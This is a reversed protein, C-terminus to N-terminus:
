CGTGVCVSVYPPRQVQTELDDQADFVVYRSVCRIQDDPWQIACAMHQVKGILVALPRVLPILATRLTNNSVFPNRRNEITGLRIPPAPPFQLAPNHQTRLRSNIHLRRLWSDIRTSSSAPTNRLLRTSPQEAVLDHRCVHSTTLPSKRALDATLSM